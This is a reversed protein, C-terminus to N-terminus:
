RAPLPLRIQFHYERPTPAQSRLNTVGGDKTVGGGGSGGYRSAKPLKRIEGFIQGALSDIRFKGNDVEVRVKLM